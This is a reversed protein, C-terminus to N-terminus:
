PLNMEIYTQISAPLLCIQWMVVGFATISGNKASRGQSRRSCPAVGITEETDSSVLHWFSFDDIRCREILIGFQGKLKPEFVEFDGHLVYVVEEVVHVEQKIPFAQGAQIVLKAGRDHRSHQRVHQRGAQGLVGARQRLVPMEVAM